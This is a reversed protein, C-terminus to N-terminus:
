WDCYYAQFRKLIFPKNCVLTGVDLSPTTEGLRMTGSYVKTMAQYSCGDWVTHTIELPYNKEPKYM